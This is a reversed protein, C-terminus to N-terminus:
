DVLKRGCMPCYNILKYVPNSHKDYIVLYYDGEICEIDITCTTDDVLPFNNCYCNKCGDM